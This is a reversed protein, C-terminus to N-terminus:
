PRGEQKKNGERIERKKKEKRRKTEWTNNLIKKKHRQQEIRNKNKIEQIKKAFNRMKETSRRDNMEKEQRLQM